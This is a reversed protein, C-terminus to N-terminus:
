CLKDDFMYHVAQPFHREMNQIAIDNGGGNVNNFYLGQKRTSPIVYPHIKHNPTWVVKIGHRLEYFKLWIDDANLAESRICDVDFLDASAFFPPYLVGGVGVALLDNRPFPSPDRYEHCWFSYPAISNNKFQIKHVRRAVVAKPYQRHMQLLSEITDSPYICDDDITIIIADGREQMSYFYKKHGKLDPVDRVIKLGYKKLKLLSKPLPVDSSDEGIYLLIAKPTVTQLMISKITLYCTNIRDGYSTLSVIVDDDNHCCKKSPLPTFQVKLVALYDKFIRAKEILGRMFMHKSIM